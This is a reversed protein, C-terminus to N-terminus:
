SHYLVDHWNSCGAARNGPFLVVFWSIIGSLILMTTLAYKMVAQINSIKGTGYNRSVLPQIGQAIGTYIAMIVLSLNAVVGYAAVGVNGQLRLIISNYVIM